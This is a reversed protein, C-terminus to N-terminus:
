IGVFKLKVCDKDLKEDNKIKILPIRPTEVHVQVSVQNLNKNNSINKM